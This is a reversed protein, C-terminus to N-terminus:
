LGWGRGILKWATESNVCVVTSYDHKILRRYDDNKCIGNEDVAKSFKDVVSITGMNSGMVSPSNKLKKYYQHTYVGSEDFTLSSKVYFPEEHNIKFEFSKAIKSHQYFENSQKRTNESFEQHDADTANEGRPPHIMKDGRQYAYGVVADFTSNEAFNDNRFDVKQVISYQQGKELIALPMMTNKTYIEARNHHTFGLEDWPIIEYDVFVGDSREYFSSFYFKTLEEIYPEEHNETFHEPPLQEDFLYIVYEGKELKLEPKTLDLKYNKFKKDYTDNSCVDSYGMSEVLERNEDHTIIYTFLRSCPDFGWKDVKISLIENKNVKDMDFSYHPSITQWALDNNDSLYAWDKLFLPCELSLFKENNRVFSELGVPECQVNSTPLACEPVPRNLYEQYIDDFIRACQLNEDYPVALTSPVILPILAFSLIIVVRTKM